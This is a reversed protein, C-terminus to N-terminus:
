PFPSLRGVPFTAAIAIPAREGVAAAAAAAATAPAQPRSGPQPSAVFATTSAPLQHQDGSPAHEADYGSDGHDDWRDNDYYHKRPATSPDKAARAKRATPRSVPPPLSQLNSPQLVLARAPGAPQQAPAAPVDPQTLFTSRIVGTPLGLQGRSSAAVPAKSGRAANFLKPLLVPPRHPMYQQAILEWKRPMAGYYHLAHEIAQVEAANLPGSVFAKAEKVPNHPVRATSRNRERQKIDQETKAPLFFQQIKKADTGFRRIGRALLEDEGALWGGHAQGPSALPPAPQVVLGPDFVRHFRALADQVEQPIGAAQAERAKSNAAAGDGDSDASRVQGAASTGPGHPPEQGSSSPGAAATSTGPPQQQQSGSTGGAQAAAPLAIQSMDQFFDPLLRLPAVDAITRVEFDAAPRWAGPADPLMDAPQQETQADAEPLGLTAPLYAPLQQSECISLQRQRFAAPLTPQGPRLVAGAPPAAPLLPKLRRAQLLKTSELPREAFNARQGKPVYTYRKRRQRTTPGPLPEGDLPQDGGLLDDWDVVFDVDDDEEDPIDPEEGRVARLFRQYEEDDEVPLEPEEPLQLMGELEDLSIANLSYNARTRRAIVDVDTSAFMPENFPWEQGNALQQPPTPQQQHQSPQLPTDAPSDVPSPDSADDGDTSEGDDSDQSQDSDELADESEDEYLEQDAQDLVQQDSSEAELAFLAAATPVYVADGGTLESKEEEEEEEAEEEGSDSSGTDSDGEGAGSLASAIFDEDHDDEETLSSLCPEAM